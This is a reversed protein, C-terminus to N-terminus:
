SKPKQEPFKGAWEALRRLPASETRYLHQRGAIRVRVLGADRLVRLHQSIASQTVRFAGIIEAVSRERDRALELIRRRTPDALAQYVDPRSNSMPLIM